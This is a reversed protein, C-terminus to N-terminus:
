LVRMYRLDFRFDQPMNHYILTIYTYKSFSNRWLGSQDNVSYYYINSLVVGHNRWMNVSESYLTREAAHPHDCSLKQFQIRALAYM